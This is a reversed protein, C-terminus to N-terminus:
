FLSHTTYSFFLHVETMNTTATIPEGDQDCLVVTFVEDIHDADLRLGNGFDVNTFRSSKDVPITLFGKRDNSHFQNSSMFPMIIKVSGGTYSTNPKMITATTLVLDQARIPNSLIIKNKGGFSNPTIKLHLTPM